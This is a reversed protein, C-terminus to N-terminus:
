KQLWSTLSECIGTRRQFFRDAEAAYEPELDFGNEVYKMVTEKLATIDFVVNFRELLDRRACQVKQQDDKDLQRDNVDLQWYVVPKHQFLFDFSVSSFDTICMDSNRIWHSVETTDAIEVNGFDLRMGNLTNKLHHHPCLVVRVNHSMLLNIFDKSLLSKLNSYYESRYFYKLDHRGFSARYTPMIFITKRWDDRKSAQLKDM